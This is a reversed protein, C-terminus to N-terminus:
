TLDSQMLMLCSVLPAVYITSGYTKIQQRCTTSMSPPSPVPNCAACHEKGSSHQVFDGVTDKMCQCLDMLLMSLMLKQLTQIMDTAPTRITNCDWHTITQHTPQGQPLTPTQETVEAAGVWHSNVQYSKSDSQQPCYKKM